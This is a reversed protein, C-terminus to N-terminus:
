SQIVANKGEDPGNDSPQAEDDVRRARKKDDRMVFFWTISAAGLVYSWVKAPLDAPGAAM